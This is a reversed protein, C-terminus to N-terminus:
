GSIHVYIDYPVKIGFVERTYHPCSAILAAPIIKDKLIQQEKYIDKLFLNLEKLRQQIGKEM